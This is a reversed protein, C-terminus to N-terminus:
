RLMAKWFDTATERATDCEAQTLKISNDYIIPNMLDSADSVHELDLYHGLEHAIINAFTGVASELVSGYPGSGPMSTWANASTKGLTGSRDWRGTTAVLLTRDDGFYRRIDTLDANNATAFALRYDAPNAVVYQDIQFGLKCQAWVSNIQRINKVAQDRTVVPASKASDLYVVYKVGLCLHEPDSSRCSDGVVGAESGALPRTIEGAPSEFSLNNGTGGAGRGGSACGPFAAASAACVFAGMLAFMARRSGWSM